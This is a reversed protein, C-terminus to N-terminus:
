ALPTIESKVQVTRNRGDQKAAYLAEDVENLVMEVSRGASDRITLVGISITVNLPGRATEFPFNAIAQRMEEARKLGGGVDCNSLIAVFEEGGYRGLFDYGRVSNRLRRAAEQLVEDGITHGYNDNILKFHDLDGLVITACTKERGTRKIERELLEMMVGRNLLGTLADHMAKFRMEERADVLTDELSLIRLGTRLRAKLEEPDCPKILYDDAGSRLGEVIDGKSQKSSLLIMHVYPQKGHSRVARCVGPGDLEPMMWDLLALRPGDPKCLQDAAMRGNSVATVEYGDSKLMKEILRRSVPDDDAILIRL